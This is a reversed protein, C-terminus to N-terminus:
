GNNMLLVFPRLEYELMYAQWIFIILDLACFTIFIIWSYFFFLDLGFVSSCILWKSAPHKSLRSKIAAKINFGHNTSQNDELPENRWSPAHLWIEFQIYFCISRLWALKAPNNTRRKKANSKDTKCAVTWRHQIALMINSYCGSRDTIGVETKM